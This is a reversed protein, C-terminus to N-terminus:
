FQRSSFHSATVILLRLHHASRNKFLTLRSIHRLKIPAALNRVHRSLALLLLMRNMLLVPLSKLVLIEYCRSWHSSFATFFLYNCNNYYYVAFLLYYISLYCHALISFLFLFNPTIKAIKGDFAVPNGLFNYNADSIKCQVSKSCM